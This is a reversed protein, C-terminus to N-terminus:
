NKEYFIRDAPTYLFPDKEAMKGHIDILRNLDNNIVDLDTIGRTLSEAHTASVKSCILNKLGHKEIKLMLDVDNYDLPFNEDM